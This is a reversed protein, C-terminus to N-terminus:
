SAKRKVVGKMYRYTLKCARYVKRHKPIRWSFNDRILLSCPKCMGCPTRNNVPYFCFWTMEMVPFWGSQKSIALMDSKTLHRIPLSHTKFLIEFNEKLDEYDPEHSFSDRSDPYIFQVFDTTYRSDVFKEISLEMEQIGNQKCYRALWEYQDGLHRRKIINQYADTIKQDPQIDELISFITPLFLKETHPYHETIWKRIEAQTEMEKTHSVRRQDIIYHTQVLQNEDILIQLLRFTSDWGGTWLLHVM